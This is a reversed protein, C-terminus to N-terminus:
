CGTLFVKTIMLPVAAQQSDSASRRGRLPLCKHGGPHAVECRRLDAFTSRHQKSTGGCCTVHPHHMLSGSCKALQLQQRVPLLLCSGGQWVFSRSFQGSVVDFLAWHQAQKVTGTCRWCVCTAAMVAGPVFAEVDSPLWDKSKVWM